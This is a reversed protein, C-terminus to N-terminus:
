WAYGMSLVIQPLVRGGVGPVDRLTREPSIGLRGTAGGSLPLNRLGLFGNITHWPASERTKVVELRGASDPPQDSREETTHRGVVVGGGIELLKNDPL